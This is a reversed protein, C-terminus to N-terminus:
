HEPQEYKVQNVIELWRQLFWKVYLVGEFGYTGTAWADNCEIFTTSGDTLIAVDITYAKPMNIYRTTTEVIQECYENNPYKMPDGLYHKMGLIGKDKVVFIRYESAIDILDSVLVDLTRDYQGFLLEKREIGKYVGSPFAKTCKLPKVFVNKFPGDIFDGLKMFKLQRNILFSGSLGDYVNIADPVKVGLRQFFKITDEVSAYVVNNKNAPVEMIDEFFFYDKDRLKGMHDLGIYASYCLDLSIEGNHKQIYHKM